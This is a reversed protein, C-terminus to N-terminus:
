CVPPGTRTSLKPCSVPAIACSARATPIRAETPQGITTAPQNHPTIAAELSRSSGKGGSVSACIALNVSSTAVAIALASAWVASVAERARM